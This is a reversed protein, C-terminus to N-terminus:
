KIFNIYPDSRKQTTNYAYWPMVWKRAADERVWQCYEIQALPDAFWSSRIFNNHYRPNLQCLWRDWSVGVIDKNRWGNEWQRVKVLKECSYDYNGKTKRPALAYRKQCYQYAYSAIKDHYDPMKVLDVTIEVNNLTTERDLVSSTSTQQATINKQKASVKDQAAIIEKNQKTIRQLMEQKYNEDRKDTTLSWWMSVGARVFLIFVVALLVNIKIQM